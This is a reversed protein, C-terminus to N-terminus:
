FNRSVTLYWESPRGPQGEVTPQGFVSLDFTNLFYEEDTVNSFGLAATWADQPSRWELRLNILEYGDACSLPGVVSFCIDSQGYVDVRPTLTSGNDMAFDYSASVSWNTEPVYSPTDSVCTVNADPLGDGNFDCDDIEDSNWHTWGFIGSITLADIPNWLAEIEAGYVDAPANQYSVLSTPAFCFNGNSDQQAGPTGAPVTTICETGGIPVIRQKYDSYFGAVNLRFRRDFLDAKVGGEYATLEEGGVSVAQAPTFPRPNYAPPRYGTAISAYGMIDETFKYDTGVRWDFHHDDIAITTVVITNDFDVDKSDDSYRVGASFRWADNIDFTMHGFGAINKAEGVNEANVLFTLPGDILGAAISYAVAPPLPAVPDNIIGGSIASFLIPPISVVQQNTSDGTYYFGGVTWDMRDWARGNFRLEATWWDMEEHGNVTQENFPSGDADTAFHSTVDNWSGIATMDVDETLKWDLKASIAAKELRSEPVFSLGSAPDDYTAYTEYISDPIFRDDYPIGYGYNEGVVTPDPVHALYNDSWVSYGDFPPNAYAVALLTDARAESSDNQYEVSVNAEADPNIVWRLQGRAGTVDEGGQTGTKCDNGRNADRVPLFGAETPHACAFDIV